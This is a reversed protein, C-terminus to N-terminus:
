RGDKELAVNSRWVDWPRLRDILGKLQVELM